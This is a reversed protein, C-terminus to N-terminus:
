EDEKDFNGFFAAYAEEVSMNALAEDSADKGAAELNKKMIESADFVGDPFGNEEDGDLNDEGPDDEGWAPDVDALSQPAIVRQDLEPADMNVWQGNKWFEVKTEGLGFEEFWECVTVDGFGVDNAMNYIDDYPTDDLYRYKFAEESLIPICDTRIKKLSVANKKFDACITYRTKENVADTISGGHSQIYKVMTEYDSFEDASGVFFFEMGSINEGKYADDDYTEEVRITLKKKNNIRVYEFPGYSGDDFEAHDIEVSQLDGDTLEDAEIGEDIEGATQLMFLLYESVSTYDFRDDDVFPVEDNEFEDCAFDTADEIMENLESASDLELHNQLRKSKVKVTIFSSSSSNTVFDTRFKM